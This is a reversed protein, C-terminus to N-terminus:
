VLIKRFGDEDNGLDIWWTCIMRSGNGEAWAQGEVKADTSNTAALQHWQADDIKVYWHGDGTFQFVYLVHFADLGLTMIMAESLQM